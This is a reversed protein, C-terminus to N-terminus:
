SKKTKDCKNAERQQGYELMKQKIKKKSLGSYKRFYFHMRQCNKSCYINNPRTPTFVVGCPCDRPHFYPDFGYKHRNRRVTNLSCGVKEAIREDEEIGFLYSWHDWDIYGVLCGQRKCLLGLSRRLFYVYGPHCGVKDAFEKDPIKGLLHKYKKIKKNYPNEPFPRDYPM